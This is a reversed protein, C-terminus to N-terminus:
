TRSWHHHCQGLLKGGALELCRSAAGSGRGQHDHGTEMFPSKPLRQQELQGAGAVLWVSIFMRSGM